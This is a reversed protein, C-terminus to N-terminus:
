QKEEKHTDVGTPFLNYCHIIGVVRAFCYCFVTKMLTDKTSVNSTRMVGLTNGEELSSCRAGYSPDTIPDLDHVIGSSTMLWSDARLNTAWAPLEMTEPDCTTM